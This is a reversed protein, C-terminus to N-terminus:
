YYTLNRQRCFENVEEITPIGAQAGWKTVKLASVITAFQAARILEQGDAISCALAGAYSDGAGVTDVSKVSIAEIYEFKGNECVFSGKNAMKIILNKVGMLQFHKAAEYATDVSMVDIGTLEKTEQRNPIILDAHEWARVTIGEAPAPDLIVFMGKRKAEIMSQIVAEAPIEMQVLLIKSDFIKSFAECVDTDRLQDNAGKVVLMTNEATRDVTIIACGTAVDQIRKIYTTDIDNKQLAKLVIDGYWDQGIMGILQVTKGLRACVTAQNAGKGGPLLEVKEAFITEGKTPYRATRAVIDINISGVVTINNM